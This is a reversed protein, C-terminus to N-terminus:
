LILNKIIPKITIKNNLTQIPIKFLLEKNIKFRSKINGQKVEIEEFNPLSLILFSLKPKDLVPCRKFNLSLHNEEKNIKIEKQCFFKTKNNSIYIM